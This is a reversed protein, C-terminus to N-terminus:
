WGLTFDIARQAANIDAPSDSYPEFWTSILTIGIKRDDSTQM